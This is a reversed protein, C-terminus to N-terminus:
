RRPHRVTTPASAQNPLAPGADPVASNSSTASLRWKCEVCGNTKAAGNPQYKQEPGLSAILSSTSAAVELKVGPVPIAM